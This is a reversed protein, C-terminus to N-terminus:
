HFALLPLLAMAELIPVSARSGRVCAMFEAAGSAAQVGKSLSFRLPKPDKDKETGEKGEKAM